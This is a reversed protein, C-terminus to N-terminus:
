PGGRADKIGTINIHHMFVGQESFPATVIDIVESPHTKKKRSVRLTAVDGEHKFFLELRLDEITKVARGDFALIIDGDKLGSAQAVSHPMVQEISLKGHRDNFLAGLQASFPSPVDPAFMFYDAMGKQMDEQDACLMTVHDAIGLRSLRSPIGYGYVVHGAGALVVMQRDPNGGLYNYISHAMTEDWLIQADFFANFDRIGSDPHTSFIKKLWNKYATNSFDMHKPIMKKEDNSLSSIGDRAVKRSIEAELNLAVVPIDHRKCFEIIPRYLHYDHGWRKFYESKELFTREDIEGQLYQDLFIQFPRQFMEMGVAIKKRRNYLDQIVQLEVMHDGFNDHHEGIFIVRNSAVRDLVVGLSSLDRSEVAAAEPIISMRIGDETNQQSKDAIVGHRFRLFSYRGYHLLKMEVAALEKASSARLAVAVEGTNLPNAQVKLIVGKGTDSLYPTLGDVLAGTDGLAMFSCNKLMSAKADEPDIETFGLAHFFEAASAYRRREADSEPLVIYRKAAGFLRSLVPPFEDKDLSRMVDYDPDLTVSSVHGFSALDIINREAGIEEWFTKAGSATEVLIPVSLDYPTDTHQEIVVRSGSSDIKDFSLVPMDTRYLWQRFFASLDEGSTQSFIRELDMWSATKFMYDQVITRIAGYFSKNGIKHKLMHFVFACKNYGVARASRGDSFRFDSLPMSNNQHVYSQYDILMDHRYTKGEGARERYLYDALYTTLGESWNGHSYDVYVSNGFWSHLIEHGLSTDVIFPLRIVQQGLLTYTALGLGTPARNEVVAFRRFPYSGILGEYLEIYQRSKKLYADALGQDEPFFYTSLEIGNYDTKKIQYPGAVFSISNRPHRFNFVYTVDADNANIVDVKDAESIAVIGKPVTASLKYYALGKFIPCWNDLMVVCDEPATDSAMAKGGQDQIELRRSSISKEFRIALVAGGEPAAIRLFSSDSGQGALIGNTKIWTLKLGEKRVFVEQDPKLRATALGTIKHHLMDLSVSIDMSLATEAQAPVAPVDTASSRGALFISFWFIVFLVLKSAM